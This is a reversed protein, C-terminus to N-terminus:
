VKEVEVTGFLGYPKIMLIVIMFIFPFVDKAGGGIIPDIYGGAINELIGIILGGVIAGLISDLGGLIVVPFVKLGFQSLSTNIGNINGILIGGVSSVVAAIAWSLAFIRKVDIGMSLAAQQDSAVARMAIGVKTKKFFVSFIILFVAVSIISFIYVYSITINGIEVPEEPFIQPFTKTDTGWILQVLSKFVSSLGITLMIISIIPEGIMKRLFIKEVLFGFIFMFLLTVFFSIVFNLKYEVTLQLCIYAGVLLLEGQAFNVVGTSKYILTFGLAVIAYISGIVVGAVLIQIFFEM